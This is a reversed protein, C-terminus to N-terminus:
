LRGGIQGEVTAGKLVDEDKQNTAEIEAVVKGNEVSIVKGTFTVTDNPAM